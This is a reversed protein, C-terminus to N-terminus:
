GVRLIGLLAYEIGETYPAIDYPSGYKVMICNNQIQMSDNIAPVYEIVLTSNTSNHCTIDSLNPFQSNNDMFGMHLAIGGYGLNQSLGMSTLTALYAEDANSTNITLYVNKYASPPSLREGWPLNKIKNLIGENAITNPDNFFSLTHHFYDTEWMNQNNIVTTHFDYGNYTTTQAAPTSNLNSSMIGFLSGVMLFVVIAVWFIMIKKKALSETRKKPSVDKKSM